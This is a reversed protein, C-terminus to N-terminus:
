WSKSEMNKADIILAGKGRTAFAIILYSGQNPKFLIKNIPSKVNMKYIGFRGIIETNGNFDGFAYTTNDQNFDVSLIWSFSHKSSSRIKINNLDSIDWIIIRSDDGGSILKSGDKSFALGRVWNKHAKLKTILNGSKTEYIYITKDACASAVIKEDPSFAVSTIVDCCDLAQIVREQEIDYIFLKDIGGSALYKSSPSIKVSTIISGHFALTKLKKKNIFDWIVITSDRGGSVLLLGDQSIDIAQVDSRHGDKFEAILERSTTTFVKISNLDTIGILEGNSTFCIDNINASETNFVPFGKVRQAYGPLPYLMLIILSFLISQRM